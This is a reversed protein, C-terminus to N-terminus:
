LSAKKVPGVCELHLVFPELLFSTLSQQAADLGQLAQWASEAEIPEHSSRSDFDFPLLYSPLGRLLWHGGTSM